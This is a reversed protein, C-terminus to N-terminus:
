DEATKSRRTFCKNATLRSRHKNTDQQKLDGKKPTWVVRHRTIIGRFLLLVFFLLLKGRQTWKENRKVGNQGRLKENGQQKNKQQLWKQGGNITNLYILQNEDKFNFSFLVFLCLFVCKFELPLEPTIFTFAPTIPLLINSEIPTIKRTKHTGHLGGSFLFSVTTTM